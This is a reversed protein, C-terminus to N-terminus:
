DKNPFHQTQFSINERSYIYKNKGATIGLFIKNISYAVYFLM